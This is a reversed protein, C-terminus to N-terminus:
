YLGPILRSTRRMYDAYAGGLGHLLAAEEVSM